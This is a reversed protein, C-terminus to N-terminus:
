FLFGSEQVKPFPDVGKRKAPPDGSFGYANFKTNLTKPDVKLLSAIEKRDWGRQHIIHAIIQREADEKIKYVAQKLGKELDIQMRLNLAFTDKSSQLELSEGASNLLNSPLHRPFITDGSLLSASRIINKLERINGPWHYKELIQMAEPSATKVEQGLIRGSEKLFNEVLLPLDGERHRLPPIKITFENLRYYLDERFSKSKVAQELELNTAAVLRVDLKITRRGGVREVEREQIFRLLKAQIELPLGSVEDLFITGGYAREFKGVRKEFAGTYSGKEHGFLESEILTNPLTSCDIAVLPANRRLSLQHIARAFLEKGTGTEGYLLVTADTRAVKHILQWVERIQPSEGVIAPGAPLLRARNQSRLFGTVTEKLKMDDVPKTIFDLAGLKMAQVANHVSAYGSLVVIGVAADIKKFRRLVEIGDMDPLLLDLIVANPRKDEFMRMASCASSSSLVTYGDCSFARHLCRNFEEEDNDNVLLITGKDPIM